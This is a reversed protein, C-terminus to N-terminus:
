LIWFRETLGFGTVMSYYRSVALKSDREKCQKLGNKLSNTPNNITGKSELVGCDYTPFIVAYDPKKGTPKEKVVEKFFLEYDM